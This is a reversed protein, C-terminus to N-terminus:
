GTWKPLTFYFTSGIGVASDIWIRGGHQEVIKRCIALGIGTGEYQNRGVLRQFIGFAREHDHPAIGIGNDRISIEWADGLDNCAIEIAPQRDPPCYKLANGLLNQFLRSLNLPNGHVCPLDPPVVIEAGCDQAAMRLNDLADAVVDAICVREAEAGARGIRAYDLLGLILRDMRKAGDVAFTLLEREEPQLREGLSRMTLSLYGSIMRLPERLDHSAAHAFQALEENSRALEATQHDLEGLANRLLAESRRLADEARKRETVRMGACSLGVVQGDHMLPEVSLDYWEAEPDDLRSPISIREGRGSEVVRRKVAVIRAALEGQYIEQDTLGVTKPALGIHPNHVWLYRLDTDQHYLTTASLDLAQAFRGVEADLDHIRRAQRLIVDDVTASITTAIDIEWPRWPLSQGRRTQTWRDFSRRPLIPSGDAAVTKDPRGAWHVSRVVEPRFLLLVPRRPDDFFCALVGSAIERQGGLGGFVQSLTDTAFVRGDARGRLWAALEAVEDAPPASGVCHIVANEDPDVWAVAAGTVGEFLETVLPEGETLATVFDEAGALKRLMASYAHMDREVEAREEASLIADLRMAFAHVLTAAQRRAAAGVRHPRRHHGIVLGWLADGRLVSISMAGDAGINHQYARHIPSFSRYRSLSLDFPAGSRDRDPVLPVPVYARTPMWRETSLRYLARAQAPIDSAPFRLGLLSQPWDPALWEGVVDGNGDDDFRYVLVREFGSVGAIARACAGALDALGDAARMVETAEFVQLHGGDSPAGGQDPLEVECFVMDDSAFLHTECWGLGPLDAMLVAPEGVQRCADLLAAPLWDPTRGLTTTPFLSDVNASRTVLALTTRDLGVVIGHPQIEGPLHIPERACLQSDRAMVERLDIPETM